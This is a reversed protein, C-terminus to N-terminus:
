PALEAQRHRAVPALASGPHNALFDRLALAEAASDGLAREAEAIGWRAEEALPGTPRTALALRYDRLAGAADRLQELHLTASAVGAVVAADSHPFRRSTARYLRDAGGWDRVRRRENALALLDEPPAKEVDLEEEAPAVNPRPVRVVPAPPMPHPAPAVTRPPEVAPPALDQKGERRPGPQRPPEVSTRPAVTHRVHRVLAPAVAGSFCFLIAAAFRLARRWGMRAPAEARALVHPDAIAADIISKVMAASRAPTLARAPGPLGDLRPLLESPLPEDM